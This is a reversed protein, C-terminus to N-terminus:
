IRKVYFDKVFQKQAATYDTSWYNNSRIVNNEDMWNFLRNFVYAAHRGGQSFDSGSVYTENYVEVDNIVVILRNNGTRIKLRTEYGIFNNNQDYSRRTFFYPLKVGNIFVDNCENKQAQTMNAEYADLDIIYNGSNNFLPDYPDRTDIDSKVRLQNYSSFLVLAAMPSFSGDVNVYTRTVVGVALPTGLWPNNDPITPDLELMIDFETGDGWQPQDPSGDELLILQTLGAELDFTDISTSNRLSYSSHHYPQMYYGTSIYHHPYFVGYETVVADSGFVINNYYGSGIEPIKDRALEGTGVLSDLIFYSSCKNSNLVILSNSGSGSGDAYVGYLDSGQCFTRLLFNYEPHIVDRSIVNDDDSAILERIKNIVDMNGDYIQEVLWVAINCDCYPQFYSKIQTAIETNQQLIEVLDKVSGFRTIVRAISM